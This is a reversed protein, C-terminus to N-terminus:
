KLTNYSLLAVSGLKTESRTKDYAQLGTLIELLIVGYSYIDYTKRGIYDECTADEPYHQTSGSFVSGRVNRVELFRVKFRGFRKKPGLFRVEFRGFRRFVM